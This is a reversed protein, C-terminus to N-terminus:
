VKNHAFHKIGRRSTMYLQWLALSSSYFSRTFTAYLASFLGGGGNQNYRDVWRFRAM